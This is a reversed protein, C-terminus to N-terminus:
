VWVFKDWVTMGLKHFRVLNFISYTAKSQWIEFWTFHFNKSVKKIVFSVLYIWYFWSFIIGERGVLEKYLQIFWSKKISGSVYDLIIDSISRILISEQQRHRLDKLFRSSGFHKQWVIIYALSGQEFGGWNNQLFHHNWGSQLYHQIPYLSYIYLSFLYISGLCDLNILSSPCSNLSSCLM